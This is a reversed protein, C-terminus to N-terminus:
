MLSSRVDHDLEILEFGLKTKIERLMGDGATHRASNWCTSFSIM